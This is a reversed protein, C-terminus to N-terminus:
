QDLYKRISIEKGDSVFSIMGREGTTMVEAGAAKWRDVVEKHPHGFHSHRGVSIVAYRPHSANVFTETSSSRSGHHPVKIVDAHLDNGSQLMMVEAQTEIDGTMLFSTEGFTFRLVVSGNNTNVAADTPNLVEIRVSDIEMVEGAFVLEVTVGFRGLENLVPTLEPDDDIRGFFAKGVRFNRAVDGLGQIHDADAHTGVIMDISSVGREWLFESVVAEGIRPVDPEFSDNERFDHRGGGDILMTKGNPLTVLAADGQGVDLFEFHLKGDPEPASIPHFLILGWCIALTTVSAVLTRRLGISFARKATKFPDWRYIVVVCIILPVFYVLYILRMAGAYIPIRIGAFSSPTLLSPLSVILWNFLEALAVFPVAVTESISSITAAIVSTISEAALAGGVWLNLPISALPFRHFYCILLPLLCIQVLFSVLVGEFIFISTRQFGIEGLRAIYPSKRIEAKWIQRGREITWADNNWYITECLRRLWVPVNPPFPYETTPMWAGIEKLKTIIPLAIAVIAAVSVFTLQFSPDFLDSPRWALLFLVSAGLSNLLNANRYSAYGVLMISFMVCARVVPVDGGVAVGYLWLAAMTAIAQPWRRRTLRRAILLVLGGLFTIHLGSIVLVHFTGGERFVDATEKDIFYKNGLISAILVGATQQSFMVRFREILSIRADFIIGVLRNFINPDSIKEIQQPSKLNATADIGQRDLLKLRSYVGPNLFREERDLECAFRIYAGHKLDLDAFQNKAQDFSLPLFLRVYGSAETVEGRVLARSVRVVIFYGDPEPEPAGSLRGELDIQEGSVIRGDDFMRKVRDPGVSGTELQSAFAGAFAFSGAVFYAAISKKSFAVAAAAFGLVAIPAILLPVDFFHGATIGFAFVAALWLLPNLSFHPLREPM